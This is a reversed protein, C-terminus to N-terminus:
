IYSRLLPVLKLYEKIEKDAALEKLVGAFSNLQRAIILPNQEGSLIAEKVLSIYNAQETKTSPLVTITSLASM